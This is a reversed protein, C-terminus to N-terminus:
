LHISHFIDVPANQTVRSSGVQWIESGVRGSWGIVLLITDRGSWSMGFTSKEFHLLLMRDMNNLKYKLIYLNTFMVHALFTHM